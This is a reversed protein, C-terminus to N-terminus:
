RKVTVKKSAVLIGEVYVKVTKSGSTLKSLSLKYSDSTAVKTTSKTGSVVKVTAGAANKVVVNAKKSGASVSASVSILITQSASVRDADTDATTLSGDPDYTVAVSGLGVEGTGLLVRITFSGTATTSTVASTFEYGPGTYVASFDNATAAVPNGFKDSLTGTIVLTRGAKVVQSSALAISAGTDTGADTWYVDVAKTATGATATLVHKGSKNSYVTVGTWAGSADTNVTISGVSYVGNASFLVGADSSITVSSFVGVGSANTVQGSIAQGNAVTPATQGIRSDASTQANLNLAEGSSATGLAGSAAVLTVASPTGATGVELATTVTNATGATAGNLDADGYSGATEVELTATITKSTAATYAPWTYTLYGGVVPTDYKTTTGDALKIRYGTGTYLTGFQDLVAYKLSTTANVASLVTGGNNNINAFSAAAATTWTYVTAYATSVGQSTAAITIKDGAVAGTSVVNFKVYGSADSTATFNVSDASSTTDKLTVGGAAFTAADTNTTAHGETLTVKVSAGAVAATNTDTLKISVPVTTVTSRVAVTDAASSGATFVFNAGSETNANSVATVTAAAVLTSVASGTATAGTVTGSSNSGGLLLQARYTAANIKGSNYASKVTESVKLKGSTTDFAALKGGTIASSTFATSNGVVTTAGTAFGVSVLGIQQLNLNADNASVYATLETDGLAPATFETTYAVNDSDKFTVTVTKYVENTTDLVGDPTTDLFATVTVTRDADTAAASDVNLKIKNVASTSPTNPVVVASTTASAVAATYTLDTSSETAGPVLSSIDGSSAAYNVAFGAVKEIKYKLNGIAASGVGVGFGTQLEFTGNGLTAFSTKYNASSPEFTIDAAFAPSGAFLTSGLAVVAGLALGKRTLNKSM